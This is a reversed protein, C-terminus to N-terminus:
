LVLMVVVVVLVLVMVLVLLFVVMIIEEGIRVRIKVLQDIMGLYTKQERTVRAVYEVHEQKYDKILTDSSESRVARDPSRIGIPSLNEM